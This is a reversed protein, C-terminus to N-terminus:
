GYRNKSAWEPRFAAIAFTRAAGPLAAGHVEQAVAEPVGAFVLV